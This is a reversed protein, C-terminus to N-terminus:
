SHSARPNQDKSQWGRASHVQALRKVMPTLKRIKLTHNVIIGTKYTQILSCVHLSLNAECCTHLSYRNKGLGSSVVSLPKATEEKM